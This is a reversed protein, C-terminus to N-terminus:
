RRNTSARIVKVRDGPYLELTKELTEEGQDVWIIALRGRREVLVENESIM